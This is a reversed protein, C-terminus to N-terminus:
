VDDLLRSGLSSSGLKSPSAKTKPTKPTSPASTKASTKRKNGTPTALTKVLAADLRISFSNMNKTENNAAQWLGLAHQMVADKFSLETKNIRDYYFQLNELEAKGQHEWLLRDDAAYRNADTAMFAQLVLENVDDKGPVIVSLLKLAIVEDVVERVEAPMKTTPSGLCNFLNLMLISSPPADLVSEVSMSAAASQDTKVGRKFVDFGLCRTRITEARDEPSLIDPGMLDEIAFEQPFEDADAEDAATEAAATQAAATEAAATEAAATEAAATEAAATEAALAFPLGSIDVDEDHSQPPSLGTFVRLNPSDFVPLNSEPSIPSGFVNNYDDM